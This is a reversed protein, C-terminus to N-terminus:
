ESSNQADKFEKPAHKQHIIYSNGHNFGYLNNYELCDFQKIKYKKQFDSDPTNIQNLVVASLYVQDVWWRYDTRFHRKHTPRKESELKRWIEDYEPISVGDNQLYIDVIANKFFQQASTNKKAYIVGGNAYAWLYKKSSIYEYRCTIGVDFCIDSLHCWDNVFYTDFDVFTLLSNDKYYLNEAMLEFKLLQMEKKFKISDIDRYQIGYKTLINIQKKTADPMYCVFEANILHRTELLKQGYQFYKSDCMTIVTNM